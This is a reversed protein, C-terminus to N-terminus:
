DVTKEKLLERDSNKFAIFLYCSFVATMVVQVIIPTAVLATEILSLKILFFKLLYYAAKSLIISLLAAPFIRNIKRMLFFFLFVNLSLEASILLMKPFVPHASILLSFAPLTMALIYSNIRGSHALSLILMLRMPEVLYVPLSLLHTISPVLYIFALASFDLLIRHFGIRQFLSVTLTKM